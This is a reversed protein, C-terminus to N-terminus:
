VGLQAGDADSRVFYHVVFAGGDALTTNLYRFGDGAYFDFGTLVRKFEVPMNGATADPVAAWAYWGDHQFAVHLVRSGRPMQVATREKPELPFKWIVM